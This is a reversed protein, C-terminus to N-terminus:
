SVRRAALPAVAGTQQPPDLREDRSEAPAAINLLAAHVALLVDASPLAAASAAPRDAARTPGDHLDM